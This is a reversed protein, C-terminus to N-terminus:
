RGADPRHPGRRGTENGGSAAGARVLSGTHRGKPRVSKATQAFVGSSAMFGGAAVALTTARILTLLANM